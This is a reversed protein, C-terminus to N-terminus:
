VGAGIARCWLDDVWSVLRSILLAPARPDLRSLVARFTKESPRRFRVGLQALVDDPATAAWTAFGAYGRMGAATALVAIALLAM